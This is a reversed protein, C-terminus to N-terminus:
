NIRWGAIQGDKDVPVCLTINGKQVKRFGECNLMASAGNLEVLRSAPSNSAPLTRLMLTAAAGALFAILVVTAGVCGWIARAAMMARKVSRSVESSAAAGSMSIMTMAEDRFKSLSQEVSHTTETVADAMATEYDTVVKRQAEEVKENTHVVINQAMDRLEDINRKIEAVRGAISHEIEGGLGNMRSDLSEARDMAEHVALLIAELQTMEANPPAMLRHESM